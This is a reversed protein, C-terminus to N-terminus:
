RRGSAIGCRCSRRVRASDHFELTIDLRGHHGRQDPHIMFRCLLKAEFRGAFASRRHKAFRAPRQLPTLTEGSWIGQLDPDGWATRIAQGRSASSQSSQAHTAVALGEALFALAIILLFFRSAM